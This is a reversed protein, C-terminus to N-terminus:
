DPTNTTMQTENDFGGRTPSYGPFDEEINCMAHYTGKCRVTFTNPATAKEYGQEYSSPDGCEKCFPMVKLYPYSSDTLEALYDPYVGDHDTAYTELAAAINRLNQKCSVFNANSRSKSYNPVMIASLIAIIAIAILIEVLTFGHKKHRVFSSIM